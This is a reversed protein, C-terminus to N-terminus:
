PWNTRAWDILHVMDAGGSLSNDDDGPTVDFEGHVVGVIRPTRGGPIDFWAWFPGGSAGYWLDAETELAQGSGGTSRGEIVAPVQVAPRQGSQFDGPYGVSAWVALGNWAELYEQSGFYGLSTGLPDYLRCVMYDQYVADSNYYRTDSVYSSGFPEAGDYYHPIFKIWWSGTGISNVPRMHKATLVIRNGVLAASGSTGDSTFIKGTLLWPWSTDTLVNRDDPPFVGGFERTSHRRRPVTPKELQPLYNVGRFKPRHSPLSLYGKGATEKPRIPVSGVTLGPLHTSLGAHARIDVRWLGHEPSGEVPSVHMEPKLLDGRPGSFFVTQTSHSSEPATGEAPLSELRSLEKFHVLRPTDDNRM